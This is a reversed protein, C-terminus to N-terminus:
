LLVEAELTSLVEQCRMRGVCEICNHHMLGNEVYIHFLMLPFDKCSCDNRLAKKKRNILELRRKHTQKANRASRKQSSEVLANFKDQRAQEIKKYQEPIGWERAIGWDQKERLFQERIEYRNSIRETQYNRNENTM